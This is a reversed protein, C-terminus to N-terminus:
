SLMGDYEVRSEKNGVLWVGLGQRGAGEDISTEKPLIKGLRFVWIGLWFGEVGSGQPACACWM